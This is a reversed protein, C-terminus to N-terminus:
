GGAPTPAGPAPETAPAPTATPKASPESSSEASPEASPEASSEAAPEAAAGAARSRLQTAREVLAEESDNRPTLTFKWRAEAKANVPLVEAFFDLPVADWIPGNTDAPTVLPEYGEKEIRLDYVGHHTFGVDVPSRGVQADNLWVLAGPPDTEIFIRREVCGGLIAAVAVVALGRAARALPHRSSRAAHMTDTM